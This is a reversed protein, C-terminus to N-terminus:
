GNQKAGTMAQVLLNNNTQTPTILEYKDLMQKIQEPSNFMMVDIISLSPIFQNKFQKYKTQELNPKIFYLEINNKDFKDQHYIDIGGIPNIYINANLNKCIDVIKDDGKLLNNKNITSSILLPTAIQLYKCIESFSFTIYNVLNNEPNLIIQQLIPYVQQFFPAKKYAQAIASLFHQKNKGDAVIDIDKILKNQSAKVLSLTLLYPNNNLLINNRNIWGRNIYNVDDYVVFEDVANMLQWYGLYPFFYPQM